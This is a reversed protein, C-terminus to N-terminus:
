WRGPSFLRGDRERNLCSSDGDGDLELGHVVAAPIGRGGEGFLLNAAAAAEDAVCQVSSELERGFLDRDGVQSVLPELGAVGIAVGVAGERFPRGSSDSVIVGCEADLGERIRRASADPDEPLLTVTGEPTNSADVGANACIRGNVETIVTDRATAVVEGEDVIVQCLEPPKGTAEALRLGDPFVEVEDLEVVRGEARSVVSQAVVLGDGDSVEGRLMEGLDDGEEVIPLKIGLVSYRMGEGM